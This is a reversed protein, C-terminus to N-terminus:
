KIPLYPSIPAARRATERVAQGVSRATEAISNGAAGKDQALVRLAETGSKKQEAPKSRQAPGGSAAAIPRREEISRTSSQIPLMREM